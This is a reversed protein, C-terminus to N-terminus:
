AGSCQNIVHSYLAELANEFPIKDFRVAQRPQLIRPLNYEDFSIFSVIGRPPKKKGSMLDLFFSAYEFDPWNRTISQESSGVVVLSKASDLAKM